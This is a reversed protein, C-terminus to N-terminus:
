QGCEVLRNPRDGATASDSCFNHGNSSHAAQFVTLLKGTLGELPHQNFRATQKEVGSVTVM